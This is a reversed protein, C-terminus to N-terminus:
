KKNDRYAKLVADKLTPKTWRPVARDEGDSLGMWYFCPINYKAAQSVYCAAQKALEGEARKGTDAGFEGLVCPIGKSVLYTNLGDIISRVEKDCADDFVTKPSDTDFAFHYPAYSHVEAM